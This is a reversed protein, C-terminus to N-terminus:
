RNGNKNLEMEAELYAVAKEPNLSLPTPTAKTWVKKPYDSFSGNVGSELYAQVDPPPNWKRGTLRSIKQGIRKGERQDLFERAITGLRNAITWKYYNGQAHKGLLEALAEVPGPAQEAKLPKAKGISIELLLNHLALFLLAAVALAWILVQPILRYYLTILWWIYALPVIVLEYIASRLAFAALLGLVGLGAWLIPNRRNM